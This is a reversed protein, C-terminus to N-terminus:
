KERHMKDRFDHFGPNKCAGLGERCLLYCDSLMDNNRNGIEWARETSRKEVMEV